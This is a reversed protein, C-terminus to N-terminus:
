FSLFTLWRRLMLSFPQRRNKLSICACLECCKRDLGNDRTMFIIDKNNKPFSVTEAYAM